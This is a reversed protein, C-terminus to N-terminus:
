KKELGLVRLGKQRLGALHSGIWQDPLLIFSMLALVGAAALRVIANVVVPQGALGAGISECILVIVAGPVLGQLLHWGAAVRGGLLRALERSLLTFLLSTGHALLVGAAIGGIGWSAGAFLAAVLVVFIVLNRFFLFRISGDVYILSDLYAQAVRLPLAAALLGLPWIAAAWKQGLLVLVIETRFAIMIGAAVASTLVILRLGRLANDRRRSQDEDSRGLVFVQRVVHDVASFSEKLQTVINYARSYLGAGTPGFTAAAFVTDINTISWTTMRTLAPWGGNTLTSSINLSGKLRLPLDARVTLQIALLWMSVLQAAVLSWLGWGTLALALAVTVYAVSSIVSSRAIASFHHRRKLLGTAAVALPQSFLALLTVAAIQQMAADIGSWALAAFGALGVLYVLLSQLLGFMVMGSVDEATVDDRRIVPVDILGELVANNLTLIVVLTAVVGFDAPSLLRALVAIGGLTIATRALRGGVLFISGALATKGASTSTGRELM